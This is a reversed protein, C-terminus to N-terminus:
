QLLELRRGALTEQPPPTVPVPEEEKKASKGRKRSGKPTASRSRSGKPSKPSKPTARDEEPPPPTPQKAEPTYFM